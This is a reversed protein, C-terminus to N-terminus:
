PEEDEEATLIAVISGATSLLAQGAGFIGGDGPLRNRV